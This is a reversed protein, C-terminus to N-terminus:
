LKLPSATWPAGVDVNAQSPQQLYKFIPNNSVGDKREFTRKGKLREHDNMRKLVLNRRRTRPIPSEELVSSFRVEHDPESKQKKFFKLPIRINVVNVESFVTM